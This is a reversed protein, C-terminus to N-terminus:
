FVCVVVCFLRRLSELLPRSLLVSFFCAVTCFMQCFSDGIPLGLHPFYSVTKSKQGDPGWLHGLPAGPLGGSGLLSGFDGLIFGWAELISGLISM